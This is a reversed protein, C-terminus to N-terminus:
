IEAYVRGQRALDRQYVEEVSAYAVASASANSTLLVRLEGIGRLKRDIRLSMRRAVFFFVCAALPLPLLQALVLLSATVPDLEKVVALDLGVLFLMSISYVVVLMSLVTIVGLARRLATLRGTAIHGLDYLQNLLADNREAWVANQIRRFAFQLETDQGSEELRVSAALLERKFRELANLRASIRDIRVPLERAYIRELLAVAIHLAFGIEFLSAFQLLDVM